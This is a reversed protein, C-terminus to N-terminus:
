SSLKTHTLMEREKGLCEVLPNSAFLTATCTWPRGSGVVRNFTPAEQKKKLLIWQPKKTSVSKKEPELKDSKEQKELKLIIKTLANAAKMKGTTVYLTRHKEYALKYNPYDAHIKEYAAHALELNKAKCKRAQFMAYILQSLAHSDHEKPTANKITTILRKLQSLQMKPVPKLDYQGNFFNEILNRAEQVQGAIDGARYLNCILDMKGALALNKPKKEIFRLYISEAMPYQSSWQEKIKKLLTHLSKIQGRPVSQGDYCDNNFKDVVESAIRLEEEIKGQSYLQCILDMQTQLTQNRLRSKM